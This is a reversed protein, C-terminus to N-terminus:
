AYGFLRDYEKHDGIWEVAVVFRMGPRSLVSYVARFGHRLNIKWLNDYEGYPKPFRDKPVQIGAFADQRLRPAWSVLDDWAEEALSRDKKHRRFLDERLGEAVEVAGASAM